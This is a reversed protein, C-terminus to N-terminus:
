TGTRRDPLLPEATLFHPDPLPPTLPEPGGLLQALDHDISDPGAATLLPAGRDLFAVIGAASLPRSILFGQLHNVGM